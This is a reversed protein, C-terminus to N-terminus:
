NQGNTPTVQRSLCDAVLNSKGRVYHWTINYEQISLSWRMLKPSKGSSETLWQLPNHDSYLNVESGFIWHRFKKLGTLAAYAEKEITSWRRQTPDFKASFFAIPRDQGEETIQSLYGGVSADSADVHLNFPKKWDIVLLHQQTADRLAAKLSEMSVEELETWPLQNPVGKKTLDTLPLAKEAFNPIYERFYTLTGLLTRLDAKSKPRALDMVAEVKEPDIQRKGSGIIQGCWPVESYAFRCKKLNLTIGHEKIVKLYSELDRLHKRWEMSAIAMDDVFNVVIDKIPELIIGLARCFSRGANKM